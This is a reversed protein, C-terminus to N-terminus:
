RLSGIYEALLGPIRSKVRAAPVFGKATSISTELTSVDYVGILYGLEEMARVLEEQHDTSEGLEPYRPVALLPKNCSLADRISGYGGQTIVFEAEEILQLLRGREVFPEFRCHVPKYRTHGTQIFVDWGHEGALTDLPRILREFSYPNTGALALIM